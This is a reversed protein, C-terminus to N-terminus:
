RSSSQRLLDSNMSFARIDCFLISLDESQADGLALDTFKEKHLLERFKEPVFKYYFQENRNKENFYEELRSAMGNGGACIEGVEYM